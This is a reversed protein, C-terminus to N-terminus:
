PEGWVRKRDARTIATIEEFGLTRYCEDVRGYGRLWQCGFAGYRQLYPLDASSKIADFLWEDEQAVVYRRRGITVLIAPRANAREAAATIARLEDPTANQIITDLRSM